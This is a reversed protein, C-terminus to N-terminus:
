PPSDGAEEGYDRILVSQDGFYTSDAKVVIQDMMAHGGLFYRGEVDFPNVRGKGYKGGPLHEEVYRRLDVIESFNSPNVDYQGIGKSLGSLGREVEIMEIVADAVPQAAYEVGADRLAAHIQIREGTTLSDSGEMIELRGDRLSFGWDLDRVAEPMREMADLYGAELDVSVAAIGHGYLEMLRNYRANMAEPSESIYVKMQPKDYTDPMEPDQKHYIAAAVQEAVQETDINGTEAVRAQGNDFLKQTGLISTLADISM